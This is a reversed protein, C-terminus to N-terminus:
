RWDADNADRSNMTAYPLRDDPHCACAITLTAWSCPAPLAVDAQRRRASGGATTLRSRSCGAVAVLYADAVNLGGRLMRHPLSIIRLM